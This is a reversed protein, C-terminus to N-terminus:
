EAASQQRDAKSKHGARERLPRQEGDAVRQGEHDRKNANAGDRAGLRWSVILKTEADM